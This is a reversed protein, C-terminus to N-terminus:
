ETSTVITFDVETQVNHPLCVYHFWRECIDCGVWELRSNLMSIECIGDDLHVEIVDSNLKETNEKRTKRQRQSKSRTSSKGKNNWNSNIGSSCGVVNINSTSPEPSNPVVSQSVSDTILRAGNISSRKSKAKEPPMVFIDALDDPVLGIEIISKWNRGKKEAETKRKGICCIPRNAM